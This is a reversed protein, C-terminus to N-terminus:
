VKYILAYMTVDRGLLTINILRSAFEIISINEKVCAIHVTNLLDNEIFISM